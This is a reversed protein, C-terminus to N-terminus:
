DSTARAARRAARRGFLPLAVMLVMGLASLGMGWRLSEPFYAFEVRHTGPPVLVARFAYNARYISAKEGDVFVQWGPYYSDSLFLIGCSPTQVSLVVSGPLYKLIDVKDGGHDACASYAQPLAEELIVEQGPRFTPSALASLILRDDAIVRASHVVYARPFSDPNEYITVSPDRFAPILQDKLGEGLTGSSVVFRVNMWDLWRRDVDAFSIRDHTILTGGVNQALELYRRSPFDSGAVEYFGYPIGTNTPLDDHLALIRGGGSLRLGNALARTANTEPFVQAPPIVPNFSFGLYGLDISILGLLAAQCAKKRLLGYRYGLFVAVLGVAIFVPLYQKPNFLRFTDLMVPYQLSLRGIRSLSDRFHNFAWHISALLGTISLAALGLWRALSVFIGETRALRFLYDAGFASLVVVCFTYALRYRAPAVLSFIPLRNIFDIVPVRMALLLAAIASGCLFWILRRDFRRGPSPKPGDVPSSVSAGVAVLATTLPVIGIYVMQEIYNSYLLSTASGWAPNGMLNPLVLSSATTLIEQALTTVAPLSSIGAVRLQTEATNKLWELFPVLQVGSLAIGIVPSLALLALTRAALPLRKRDATTSIVRFLCYAGWTLLMIFSTQYHGGLVHVATVLGLLSVWSLGGRNIFREGLFFMLPMWAYANTVPYYLWVTMSGSLMFVLGGFCAGFLEVGLERLFLYMGMAAIWSRLLISATLASQLPLLYGLLNVPYLIASEANAFLPTGSYIFPNWLPFEGRALSERVAVQWPYFKLVPDSLLPNAPQVYGLPADSKFFSFQFIMDAPTPVKGTLIERWHLSGVVGLFLLSVAAMERLSSWSCNKENM